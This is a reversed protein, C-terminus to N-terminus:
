WHTKRRSDVNDIQQTCNGTFMFQSFKKNKNKNKLMKFTDHLRKTLERCNDNLKIMSHCINLGRKKLNSWDYLQGLIDMSCGFGVTIPVDFSLLLKM